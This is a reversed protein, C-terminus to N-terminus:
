QLVNRRGSGHGTTTGTILDAFYPLFQFFHLDPHRASDAKRIGSISKQNPSRNSLESEMMM